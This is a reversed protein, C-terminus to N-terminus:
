SLVAKAHGNAVSRAGGILLLDARIWLVYCVVLVAQPALSFMALGNPNDLGHRVLDLAAAALGPLRGALVAGRFPDVWYKPWFELRTRDDCTIASGLKGGIILAGSALALPVQGIFMLSATLATAGAVSLLDAVRNLRGDPVTRGAWARHYTEGSVLFIVTAISLALASPSGLFYAYVLDGASGTQSTLAVVLETTVATVLGLLNGANYYGGPGDFRSRVAHRARAAVTELANASGGAEIHSM